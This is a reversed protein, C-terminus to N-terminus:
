DNKRYVVSYTSFDLKNLLKEMEKFSIKDLDDLSPFEYKGTYLYNIAFSNAIFYSDELDLLTGFYYKKKYLDKSKKDPMTLDTLKTKVRNVFEDVNDTYLDFSLMLYDLGYPYYSYSPSVSYNSIKDKILNRYFESRKSFNFKLFWNLYTNLRDKEEITFDNMPIKFNLGVCSLNKKDEYVDVDKSPIFDDYYPIVEHTNYTRDISDFTKEIVKLIKDMDFNGDVVLVENSPKYFTNYILRLDDYSFDKVDDYEGTGSMFVDDKFLSHILHEHYEYGRQNKKERVEELVPGRSKEIGEKTFQSDNIARILEELSEEFDEYGHIFFKTYEKYTTGRLSYYKDTFHKFLNGYPSNDILVHELLHAIGDKCKYDVNNSYFRNIASGYKIYLGANFSHLEDNKCFVVVLGNKLVVYKQKIM